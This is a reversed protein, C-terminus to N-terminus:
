MVLLGVIASMLSCKSTFPASRHGNDARSILDLAIPDFQGFFSLAVSAVLTMVVENVATEGRLPLLTRREAIAATATVM